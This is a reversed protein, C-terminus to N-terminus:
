NWFTLHLEVQLNCPLPFPILDEGYATLSHLVKISLLTIEVSTFQLM